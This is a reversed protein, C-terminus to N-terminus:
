WSSFAYGAKATAVATFRSVNRETNSCPYVNSSHTGGGSTITGKTSDNSTVNVIIQFESITPAPM